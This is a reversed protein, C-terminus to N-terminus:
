QYPNKVLKPNNSIWGNDIESYYQVDTCKLPRRWLDLKQMDKEIFAWKGNNADGPAVVKYPWLGLRQSTRMNPDGTWIKSAEM